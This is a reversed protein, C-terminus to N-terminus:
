YIPFNQYPSFLRNYIILISFILNNTYKQRAAMSPSVLKRARLQTGRFLVLDIDCLGRGCATPGMRFAFIM